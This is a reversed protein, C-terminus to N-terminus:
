EKIQLVSYLKFLTEYYKKHQTALEEKLRLLERQSLLYEIASDEGLAYASKVLPMLENEYKEVMSKQA